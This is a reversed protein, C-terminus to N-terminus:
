PVVCGSGPYSTSGITGGNSYEPQVWITSNVMQYLNHWACKDDAEYGVRDYWANLGNDGSDTVAERIEHSGVITLMDTITLGYSSLSCGSCNPYPFVAYKIQM